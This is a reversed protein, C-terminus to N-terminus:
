CVTKVIRNCSGSISLINVLYTFIPFFILVLRTSRFPVASSLAFYFFWYSQYVLQLFLNGCIIPMSWYMLDNILMAAGWIINYSRRLFMVDSVSIKSMVAPSRNGQLGRKTVFAKPMYCIRKEIFLHTYKTLATLSQELVDVLTVMHLLSLACVAHILFFIMNCYARNALWKIIIRFLNQLVLAILHASWVIMNRRFLRKIQVCDFQVNSYQQFIIELKVFLNLLEILKRRKFYAELLIILPPICIALFKCFFLFTATNDTHKESIDLFEEILIFHLIMIGVIYSVLAVSVFYLSRNLEWKKKKADFSVPALGFLACIRIMQKISESLSM